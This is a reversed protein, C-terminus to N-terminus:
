APFARTISQGYAVPGRKPTLPTLAIKESFEIDFGDFTYEADGKEVLASVPSDEEEEDVDFQRVFM